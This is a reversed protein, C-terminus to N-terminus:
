PAMRAATCWALRGAQRLSAQFQVRFRALVDGHRWLPDVKRKLTPTSMAGEGPANEITQELVLTKLDFANTPCTGTRHISSRQELAIKV